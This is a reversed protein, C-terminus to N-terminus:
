EDIYKFIFGNHSLKSGTCVQQINKKSFGFKEFAQATLLKRVITGEKTSQEIWRPHNSASKYQFGKSDYESKFMWVFNKHIGREGNCCQEVCSSYFGEHETDKICTFNRVFEGKKTLQVIPLKNLNDYRYNIATPYLAIQEQEKLEGDERTLFYYVIEVVVTDPMATKYWLNSRGAVRVARDSSGMGVYFVIGNVKHLYVYCYEKNGTRCRRISENIINRLETNSKLIRM